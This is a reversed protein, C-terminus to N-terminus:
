QIVGDSNFKMLFMDSSGANTYGDLGGATSGTVYINDTSDVTVASGSDGNWTGRQKTWQKTGSSNYKVLFLDDYGSNTNGDLEGETYGTVYINNSTDVTVGLGLDNTSTGLQKTWQKVGSSNYKVLFLDKNGSNTNGDLGGSTYGTVYINDSSDVTVGTGYDKEITGLQQTWQKTGSSNYKVLFIDYDGSNTNGDLGGSTYGTVYINDSSDVTVETGDDLSSSGLQKTWQKTGSSNYKVLFIDRGGSSTNGDLGGDTIGTVYINDSSDVKVGHGSDISSTGMQKTWQKTGSSNYKVLFIDGIGASTNGGLGGYTVGSVYINDSSDAEIGSVYDTSSTGFQKTWQKVGSSNYKVLFIDPNGPYTGGTVYINGSSDVMVGSGSDPSSTGFQHTFLITFGSSTEYQSSLTNGATDKVGTTVRIKYTTSYSLNDSPDVTFTKDSNSSSPSSSMQVCSSFNDSSLAFSGSCTTNDTNTTVSTNDMAKSFTVSINNTTISVGSQNDTPYISSVTPATTDIVFSSMNLTVSNSGNDTVTVTCDSYTDESLSVLTITNNDTTASTTNSSCSGGYTITGAESSSFTYDPTTDNTPTTVATVEELTAATLDVIFSTLTITNSVNGTADTVKITCDSYTDESLSVLTITNNDTTASTTNSSCSGGYTITGAESSSFTYDPTSDNTPTTVFTVEAVVPATTDVTFSTITLTNSANEASDTVTITCNEYTGESLSVLTITNDGSIASTASSSCSGGYTISGAESSSFTYNPTTDNTPTTVVTVETLIPPVPDTQFGSSTTWQSTLSDGSSDKTGTTIRIRYVTSYSLNDKPTITFTKDDSNSSSPSSSMQVCSTFGDSSVQFTGFCSTDLTNTTVSSTDMTESFTVSVTSTISVLTDGDSPSSSSVTPPTTDTTTTTNDSTTSADDDSSCSIVTFSFLLISILILIHRM